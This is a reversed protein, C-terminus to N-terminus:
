LNAYVLKPCDQKREVQGYSPNTTMPVSKDDLEVNVYSPIISNKKDEDFTEESSGTTLPYVSCTFYIFNIFRTFRCVALLLKVVKM